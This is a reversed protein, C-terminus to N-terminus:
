RQKAALASDIAAPLDQMTYQQGDIMFTPTQMIRAQLAQQQLRLIEDRHKHSAMSQEFAARNLKLQEAYGAFLALPQPSEAWEAQKAFLLDHMPWFANQDAASRAAEAAVIANQHQSLPFDHYVLRVKGTDIYDRTFQAELQTAFYGCGPCQFDAYEVVTVPADARGKSPLSPDVATPGSATGTASLPQRSSLVAGGIIAVGVVVIIGLVIYFKRLTDARSRKTAARGRQTHTQM